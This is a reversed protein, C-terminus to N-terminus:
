RRKKQMKEHQQRKYYNEFFRQNLAPEFYQKRKIWVFGDGKSIVAVDIPGGVTESVMTVKRKFSTLSVLNEAMTALENKPLMEVVDLVPDVHKERRYNKVGKQFDNFVETSIRKLTGRLQSKSKDDLSKLNEVIIEPYREFVKSLYGLMHEDLYPDIGEMFTVVMEKQAFPFITASNQTDIRMSIGPQFKLKNNVISDVAFSELAPFTDEEGFGTIVIGTIIQEDLTSKPFLYGAIKRLKDVNATTLPLKEFVDKIAELIINKYKQRLRATFGKPFPMLDGAATWKNHHEKIISTIVQKAARHTIKGKEKLISRVRKRIGDRITAFYPYIYHRLREEQLFSTFLPNGNDLFRIFDEAYAKVTKFSKDILKHISKCTFHAIKTLTAYLHHVHKHAHMKYTSVQLTSSM